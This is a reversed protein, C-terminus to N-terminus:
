FTIMKKHHLRITDLNDREFVDLVGGVTDVEYFAELATKIQFASRRAPMRGAGVGLCPVLINNINHLKAIGLLAKFSYYVNITDAIESHFRMTPSVIFYEPSGRDLKIALARGVPLEGQAETLIAQKVASQIGQGFVKVYAPDVGSNMSGFSNVPSAVSQFPVEEGTLVNVVDDCVYNIEVDDPVTHLVRKYEEIDSQYLSIFTFKLKSKEIIQSSDM